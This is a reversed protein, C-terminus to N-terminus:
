SRDLLPDDELGDGFEDSQEFECWSAHEEGPRARCEPCPEPVTEIARKLSRAEEFRRHRGKKVAGGLSVRSPYLTAVLQHGLEGLRASGESRKGRLAEGPTPVAEGPPWRGRVGEPPPITRRPIRPAGPSRPLTATHSVLEVHRRHQLAEALPCSRHARPPEWRDLTGLPAAEDLLCAEVVLVERDDGVRRALELIADQM